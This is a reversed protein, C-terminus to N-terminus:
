TTATWEGGFRMALRARLDALIRPTVARLTPWLIAFRGQHLLELFVGYPVGHAVYFTVGLGFPASWSHLNRRAAGTRDTWPAGTALMATVDQEWPKLVALTETQVATPLAVLRARVADLGILVAM